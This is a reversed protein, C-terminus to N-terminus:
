QTLAKLKEILIERAVMWVAIRGLVYPTVIFYCLLFTFALPTAVNAHEKMLFDLWQFYTRSFSYLIWATLLLLMGAAWNWFVSKSKVNLKSVLDSM